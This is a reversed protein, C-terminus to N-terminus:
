GLTRSSGPISRRRLLWWARRLYNGSKLRYYPLRKHWRPKEVLSFREGTITSVGGDDPHCSFPELGRLRYDHVDFRNLEHDLARTQPWLGPLMRAAAERRVLYAANGTFPGVYANLRYRGARGQSIPLKARICCFRILDWHSSIRLATDFAEMFDDHIIVDDEFILGADFSSGCLAEWVAVHSAYVGMKGPLIATGMNRRYAEGDVRVGLREYEARGDIAPFITYDLGFRRFQEVMAARRDVDQRRNILWVGVKERTLNM